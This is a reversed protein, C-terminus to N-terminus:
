EGLLVLGPEVALGFKNRDKLPKGYPGPRRHPPFFDTSCSPIRFRPVLGLFRLSAATITFLSYCLRITPSSLRMYSLGSPGFSKEAEFVRFEELRWRFDEALVTKETQRTKRVRIREAFTWHSKNSRFWFCVLFIDIKLANRFTKHTECEVFM